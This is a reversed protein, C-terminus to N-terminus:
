QIVCCSCVTNQVPQQNQHQIQGILPNIVPGSATSPEDGPQYRQHLRKRPRALGTNRQSPSTVLASESGQVCFQVRGSQMPSTGASLHLDGSSGDHALAVTGTLTPSAGVPHNAPMSSMVPSGQSAVEEKHHQASRFHVNLQPSQRQTPPFQVTNQDSAGVGPVLDLVVKYAAGPSNDITEKHTRASQSTPKQAVSVKKAPLLVASQPESIITGFTGCQVPSIASATVKLAQGVNIPTISARANNMPTTPPVAPFHPSTPVNLVPQHIMVASNSANEHIIIKNEREEKEQRVVAYKKLLAEDEIAKQRSQATDSGYPVVIVKEFSVPVSVGMDNRQQQGNRIESNSESKDPYVYEDDEPANEIMGELQSFANLYADLAIRKDDVAKAKDQDTKQMLQELYSKREQATPPKSANLTGLILVLHITLITGMIKM